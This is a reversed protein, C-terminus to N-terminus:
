TKIKQNRPIIQDPAKYPFTYFLKARNKHNIAIRSISKWDRLFAFEEFGEVFPLEKM